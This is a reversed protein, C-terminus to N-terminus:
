RIDVIVKKDYDVSAAKIIARISRAIRGHRGIVMGMDEPSVTLTLTVSTDDEQRKVTIEEPHDVIAAAVDHLTKEFDVM